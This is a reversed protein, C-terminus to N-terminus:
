PGVFQYSKITVWGDPFEAGNLNLRTKGMHWWIATTSRTYISGEFSVPKPTYPDDGFKQELKRYLDGSDVPGGFPLIFKPCSGSM